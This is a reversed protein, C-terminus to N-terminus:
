PGRAAWRCRAPALPQGAAPRPPRPRASAPRWRRPPWPPRAPSPRSSAASCTSCPSTLGAPGAGRRAGEAGAGALGAAAGARRAGEGVPCPGEKQLVPSIWCPVRSAAAPLLSGRCREARRRGRARAAGWWHRRHYKNSVGEGWPAGAGVRPVAEGRAPAARGGVGSGKGARVPLKGGAMAMPPRLRRPQPIPPRRQTRLHSGPLRHGAPGASPGAQLPCLALGM